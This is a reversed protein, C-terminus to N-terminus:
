MVIFVDFRVIQRGSVLLNDVQIAVVRGVNPAVDDRCDVSTAVSGGVAGSVVASYDQEWLLFGEVLTKVIGLVGNTWVQDVLTAFSNEVSLCM